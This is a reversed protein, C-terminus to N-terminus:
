CGHYRVFYCGNRKFVIDVSVGCCWSYTVIHRGLFGSRCCVTPNGTCCAPICVPVEIICCTCPDKVQLIVEIKPQCCPKCDPVCCPAPIAEPAPAAAAPPAADSPSAQGNQRVVRAEAFSGMALLFLPVVVVSRILTM